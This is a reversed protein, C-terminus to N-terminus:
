WKGGLLKAVEALTIFDHKENCKVGEVEEFKTQTLEKPIQNYIKLQKMIRAATTKKNPLMGKIMRKLMRSPIREYKPGFHPNSLVRADVRQKWKAVIEERRGVLVVNEANVIVVTEGNIMKKAVISSLRGAVLKSADVNMIIV